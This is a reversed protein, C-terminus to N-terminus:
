LCTVRMVMTIYVQAFNQIQKVLTFVLKKEAAGVSGDIGQTAGEGLISFNNKQNDTRSSSTNDADITVFNRLIAGIIKQM